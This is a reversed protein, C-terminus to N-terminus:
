GAETDLGNSKKNQKWEELTLLLARPKSGEHPGVIGEAELADLLRAARTYGIRFRRQFLSASSHGIDFTVRLADEFLEDKIGESEESGRGATTITDKYEPDSQEKLFEVIQEVQRESIFSGQVRVPKSAGIPYFLMDGQGLLKEAGITDLIIRSDIGRPVAFGIRSPINSRILGTIVDASPRQTALVMHIGAARAMQALRSIADEVDGPAVMMLDALEDIIVVIYPMFEPLEPGEEAAAAEEESETTEQAEYEENVRFVWQNYGEIEKVRATSFANYRREMEKVVWNLASSAKKPDTIVPTLLHPIGNYITLEVMKPDIMILKVQDSTAKFLISAIISNICVSKGSGTAGAVLLHLLRNLDAVVPEGAIDKGFGVVLPSRAKKFEKSELVDRLYVISSRKNPIEIGVASKGPIPAEIRVSSAALSLAIDDSLSVIKSVKVGPAPQVEYRTVMPGQTYKLVKATIGFDDLTKELVKGQSEIESESITKKGGPNQGLISPDPLVDEGEPPMLKLQERTKVQERKKGTSDKIEKKKRLARKKKPTSETPQNLKEEIEYSTEIEENEELYGTEEPLEDFWTEVLRIFWTLARQLLSYVGLLIGAIGGFARQIFFRIGMVLPIDIICVISVFVLSTLVVYSGIRGVIRVLYGSIFAGLIGGAQGNVDTLPIDSPLMLGTAGLFAIFALVAGLFRTSASDLEKGFLLFLGTILLGIPPIYAGIGIIWTLSSKIFRGLVGVADPALLSVLILVAITILMIGIIEEFRKPLEEGSKHTEELKKSM